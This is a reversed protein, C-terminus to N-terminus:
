PHSSNWITPNPANTVSELEYIVKCSDIVQQLFFLVALIKQDKSGSPQETNNQTLAAIKKVIYVDLENISTITSLENQMDAIRATLTNFYKSYFLHLVASSKQQFLGHFTVLCEKTATIIRTQCEQQYKLPDELMDADNPFNYKNSVKIQAFFSEVCNVPIDAKPTFDFNFVDILRPNKQDGKPSYTKSDEFFLIKRVIGAVPIKQEVIKDTDILALIVHTSGSYGLHRHEEWFGSQREHVSKKDSFVPLLKQEAIHEDLFRGVKKYDFIKVGSFITSEFTHAYAVLYAYQLPM